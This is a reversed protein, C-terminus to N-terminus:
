LASPKSRGGSQKWARRTEAILWVPASRVVAHRALGWLIRRLRPTKAVYFAAGVAAVGILANAVTEAQRETM